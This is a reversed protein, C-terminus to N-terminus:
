YFKEYVYFFPSRGKEINESKLLKRLGSLTNWPKVGAPISEIEQNGKGKIQRVRERTLNFKEGIEELTMAHEGM